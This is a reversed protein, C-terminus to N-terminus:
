EIGEMDWLDINKDYGSGVLTNGDRSFVIRWYLNSGNGSLKAIPKMEDISWIMIGGLSAIAFVKGNPSFAFDIIYVNDVKNYIRWHPLSWITFGDQEGIAFFRNDPSFSIGRIDGENRKTQNSYKIGQNSESMLPENVNSEISKNDTFLKGITKHIQQTNLDWIRVKKDNTTPTSPPTQISMAFWRGNYSFKPFEYIYHKRDNDLTYIKNIDKTNTFDWIEIDLSGTALLNDNPSVSSVTSPIKHSSILEWTSVDWFAVFWSSKSILLEGSSDFFVSQIGYFTENEDIPHGTLVKIPKEPIERDWVMIENSDGASVVYYPEIPSIALARAMSELKFEAIPLHHKITQKATKQKEKSQIDNWQYWTSYFLLGLSGLLFILLVIKYQKKM